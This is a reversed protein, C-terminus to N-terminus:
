RGAAVDGDRGPLPLPRLALRELDHSEEVIGDSRPLLSAFEGVTTQMQKLQKHQEILMALFMAELPVARKAMAQAAIQHRSLEFLEDLVVQDEKRLAKRFEGWEEYLKQLIPQVTRGM